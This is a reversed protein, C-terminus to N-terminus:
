KLPELGSEQMRGELAAVKKRLVKLEEYMEAARLQAGIQKRAEQYPRAPQGFVIQRPPIKKGTPLGAGAGVVVWDGIEVHDGVGVKGGMTVHSGIRCSGSIGTQASIVTHAGIEVNHAVQVLNDLKCGKGIRTSGITARDITVSAGLEVEDEIIVNGVQPVKEQGQATAVYGFGDAGIVTGAHIIVQKGVICDRYIVVNPHLFSNEGIVVNEGVFVHSRLVSHDGILAGECVTVFAELTVDKGIKATKAVLAKDSVSPCFQPLPFFLRLLQAWALKPSAVQILTKVSQSIEPTVILCAIPSAELKQFSKADQAFTIFGEQPAELNTIGEIRLNPDGVVKGGLYAALEQVSKSM